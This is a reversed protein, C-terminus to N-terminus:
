YEKYGLERSISSATRLLECIKEDNISNASKIEKLGISGIVSNSYDRIPAAISVVGAELEENCIAYGKSRVLKLRKKIDELNCLTTYTYRKNERISFLGDVHNDDMYAIIAQAGASANLPMETGVKVHLTMNSPEEVTDICVVSNSEIVSLVGLNEYKRSLRELHRRSIKRVDNNNLLDVAIKLIQLGLKYRRSRDDQVVYGGKKLSSLMRHISSMPYDLHESIETITYGDKSEGLLEILTTVRDIIQM